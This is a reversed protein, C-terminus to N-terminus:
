HGKKADQERLEKAKNMLDFYDGQLISLNYFESNKALEANVYELGLEEELTKRGSFLNTGLGLRDGPIDVGISALMTPFMDLSTFIRNKSAVPEIAPNIFANYITRKYGPYTRQEFYDGPQMSLHDGLIVLTTNSFFDQQQLWKIFGDVQKSSYAYVNEYQTDYKKDASSELYGDPFHTNVTLLSISFPKDASALTTIEDKAWDFLHSDDYGWWVRDSEKMRGEEIAAKLDSIEYNGHLAYYNKRGGFNADSGFMVELNYGEKRLIEGLTYAGTMFKDSAATYNNGNVPIKLPLGSSTAVMAAVTWTTGYVPLAGGIKDTNSFNLNDKAIKELEPIVTYNWGGGNEKDIMSNEMSELYLIILNRKEAPFTLAVDNPYVYHEDIFTSYDSLAKRYNGVGLIQYCTLLSILLILFAYPLRFKYIFRNPFVQFSFERNRIKVVVINKRKKIQLLPVIFISFIILLPLLSSLIASIFVESSTGETGSVLYFLMEDLSQGNFNERIYIAFAFLFTSLMLILITLFSIFYKFTKKKM